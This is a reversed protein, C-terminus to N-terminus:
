YGVSAITRVHMYHLLVEKRSKTLGLSQEHKNTQKIKEQRGRDYEQTTTFFHANGGRVVLPDGAPTLLSM